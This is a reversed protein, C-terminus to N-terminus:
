SPNGLVDPALDLEALTWEGERRLDLSSSGRGLLALRARLNRLGMGNGSPNAALPRGSNAIRFRLGQGHATASIKVVGGKREPAIGHKIANEALPLVLLPPM